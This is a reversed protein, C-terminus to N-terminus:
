ILALTVEDTANFLSKVLRKRSTHPTASTTVRDRERQHGWEPELMTGNRDGEM